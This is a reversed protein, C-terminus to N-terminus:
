MPNGMTLNTVDFGGRNGKVSVMFIVDGKTFKCLIQYKYIHTVGKESFSVHKRIDLTKIEEIKILAGQKEGWSIIEERIHQDRPVPYNSKSWYAEFNDRDLKQFSLILGEAKKKAMKPLDFIIMYMSFSIFFLTSLIFAGRTIMKKFKVEM